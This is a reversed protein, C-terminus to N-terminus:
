CPGETKDENVASDSMLIKIVTIVDANDMVVLAYSSFTYDHRKRLYSKSYPRAVSATQCHSAAFAARAV